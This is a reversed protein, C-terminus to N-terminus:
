WSAWTVILVKMGRLSSISFPTGDRDPLTIEPLEASLLARGGAEPGLAWLGHAEDNVLAMGIREALVQVDVLGGDSDPLPVCRDAKCAGEPKVEWGTGAHLDQPSAELSRLIVDV